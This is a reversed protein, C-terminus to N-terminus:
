RKCAQEEQQKAAQRDVERLIYARGRLSDAVNRSFNGARQDRREIEAAAWILFDAVPEPPLAGLVVSMEEAATSFEAALAPHERSAVASRCLDSIHADLLRRARQNPTETM